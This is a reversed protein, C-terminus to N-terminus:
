GQGAATARVHIDPLYGIVVTDAPFEWEGLLVGRQLERGLSAVIGLAVGLLAGGIYLLRRNPRIPQLPTKAPDAVSFRESKQRRELDTAMEASLKKGLLSQYNAKSIEYDRTVRAMEQERIPLRSVRGQVDNMDRRIREQEALRMQLDKDAATIQARLTAVRERAKGIETPDVTRGPRRMPEAEAKELVTPAVSQRTLPPNASEVEKLRALTSRLRRVDPHDESYRLRLGSLQDELKQVEPNPVAPPSSPLAAAANKTINSPRQSGADPSVASLANMREEALALSNELIIKSERARTGAETNAQYEAQYRGLTGILTNQQEPLEGAHRMKYRTLAAELDDLNRKAEILQSDMFERTGEAQMERSKMNEDVFFKALYNAVQAVSRRDPGQFGVRFATLRDTTRDPTVKINARVADVASEPVVTGSGGPVIKLDRILQALRESSLIQQSLAALRGQTDANVTSSVYKEPIRPSDVVILAEASYVAPMKSVYVYTGVTVFAAVAVAILKGKWISRAISLPLFEPRILPEKSRAGGVRRDTGNPTLM